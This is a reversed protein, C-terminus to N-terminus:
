NKSYDGHQKGFQSCWNVTGDVTNSPEKEEVDQRINTIEQRKL